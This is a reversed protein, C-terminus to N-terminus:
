WFIMFVRTPKDMTLMEKVWHDEFYSYPETDFAKSFDYEMM